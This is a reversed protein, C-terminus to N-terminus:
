SWVSSKCDFPGKAIEGTLADWIRVTGDSSGSAVMNSDPSFAVCWVHETYGEFPGAITDGTESDWICITHDGSSSAVRKGGPSFSIGYVSGTHGCFINIVAPWNKNAGSIASLTNPFHPRYQEAVFCELPSFPLASIYIHPM